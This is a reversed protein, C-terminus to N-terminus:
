ATRQARKGDRLRNAALWHRITIAALGGFMLVTLTARAAGGGDMQDALTASAALVIGLGIMECAVRRNVAYWVDDDQLTAPVRFGYFRNRPVLRFLFPISIVAILVGVFFIDPLDM